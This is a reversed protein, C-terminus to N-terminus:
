LKVTERALRPSAVVSQDPGAQHLRAKVAMEIDIDSGSAAMGSGSYAGVSADLYLM